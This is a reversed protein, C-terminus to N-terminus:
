IPVVVPVDKTSVSIAGSKVCVGGCPVLGNLSPGIAVTVTVSHRTGAVVRVCGENYVVHRPCPCDKHRRNRAADNGTDCDYVAALIIGARRYDCPVLAAVRGAMYINRAAKAGPLIDRGGNCVAALIIEPFDGYFRRCTGAAGKCGHDCVAHYGGYLDRIWGPAGAIHVARGKNERWSAPDPAVNATDIAAGPLESPPTERCVM